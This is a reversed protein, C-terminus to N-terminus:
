SALFRDLHGLFDAWAPEDAMLIHNRSELTVFEAQPILSALRRGEEYPTAMDNRAHVVMTPVTVRQAVEALDLDYFASELREANAADASNRQLENFVRIQESTADPLYTMTFFTRFAPNTGGWGSRVLEVMARAEAAADTGRRLMGRAYGGYLFLHSVREPHRVAYAIAPAAGQSMGFLAFREVDTSDVVAELDDAWVDLDTLDSEGLDRDSLGGGRADYRIYRFRGGLERMWHRWVPSNWDHDVNTLWNGAKIFPRGSGISAVALQTGDASRAFHVSQHLTDDDVLLPTAPKEDDVEVDAVFHFGRGHVTRIIRQTRGDDGLAARAAAVRSSLASDSVFRDGWINDLLETRLVVRDRHEVLYRLM